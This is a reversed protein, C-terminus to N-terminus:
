SFTKDVNVDQLSNDVSFMMMKPLNMLFSWFSAGDFAIQYGYDFFKRKIANVTLRVVGFLSKIIAFQSSNSSLDTLEYVLCININKRNLLFNQQILVSNNLKM